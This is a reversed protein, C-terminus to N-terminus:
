ATDEMLQQFRMHKFIPLPLMELMLGDILKIPFHKEGVGKYNFCIGPSTLHHCCLWLGLDILTLEPYHNWECTKLGKVTWSDKLGSPCLLELYFIDKGLRMHLDELLKLVKEVSLNLTPRLLPGIVWGPNVTVMDTGNERALKWAAEEALTKSLTYWLQPNNVILVVPSATRFVGDCGDAVSDFSGVELLHAKFLLLREKAGELAILHETRKPDDTACMLLVQM